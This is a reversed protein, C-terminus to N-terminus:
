IKIFNVPLAICYLHNRMKEIFYFYFYIMNHIYPTLSPQLYEIFFVLCPHDVILLSSLNYNGQPNYFGLSWRILKLLKFLIYITKKM